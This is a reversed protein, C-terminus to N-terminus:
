RQIGFYGRFSKNGSLVEFLIVGIVVGCIGQGVNGLITDVGAALGSGLILWKYFFYGVVMCAEAAVTAAVAWVFRLKGSIKVLGHYVLYAVIAVVAKIFFTGPVYHMYGTLVDAMASGIGAALGGYVPGLLFGCLLVIGDGPHVYGGTPTPLQVSMTCVCSLAAMVAALALRKTRISQNQKTM